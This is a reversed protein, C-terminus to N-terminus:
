ACCSGSGPGVRELREIEDFNDVIVHGVGAAVAQELEAESKNNGHLYIREPDFGANLALHLEGGSACDVSLGEDAFIAARGHM